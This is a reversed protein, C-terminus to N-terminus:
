PEFRYGVGRKDRGLTYMQKAWKNAIDEPCLKDKCLIWLNELYLFAYDAEEKTAYYDSDRSGPAQWGEIANYVTGIYYGAASKMVQLDSFRAIEEPSNVYVRSVQLSKMM